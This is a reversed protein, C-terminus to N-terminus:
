VKEGDDSNQRAKREAQKRARRRKQKFKERCKASCYRHSENSPQFRGHCVPCERIRSDDFRFLADLKEESLGTLAIVTEQLIGHDHLEVAYHLQEPM